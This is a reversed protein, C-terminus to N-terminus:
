LSSTFAVRPDDMGRIPIKDGSATVLMRNSIEQCEANRRHFEYSVQHKRLRGCVYYLCSVAVNRVGIWEERCMFIKCHVGASSDFKSTGEKTPIQETASSLVNFMVWALDSSACVEYENDGVAAVPASASSNTCENVVHGKSDCLRCIKNPCNSVVRGEGSSYFCKVKTGSTKVAPKTNKAKNKTYAVLPSQSRSATEFKTRVRSVVDSRAVKSDIGSGLADVVNSYMPPLLVLLFRELVHEGSEGKEMARLEIDAEQLRTLFTLQTRATGTSLEKFNRPCSFKNIVSKPAYTECLRVWAVYRVGEQEVNSKFAEEKSANLLSQFM